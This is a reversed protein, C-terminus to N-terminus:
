PHWPPQPMTILHGVAQVGHNTHWQPQTDRYQSMADRFNWGGLLATELGDKLVVLKEGQQCIGTGINGQCAAPHSSGRENYSGRYIDIGQGVAVKPVCGAAASHGHVGPPQLLVEAAEPTSNRLWIRIIEMIGDRDRMGGDRKEKSGLGLNGLEEAGVPVPVGAGRCSGRCM